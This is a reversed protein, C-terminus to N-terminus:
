LHSLRNDGKFTDSRCLECGQHTSNHCEDCINQCCKDCRQTTLNYVFSKPCCKNIIFDNNPRTECDLCDNVSPGLGIVLYM